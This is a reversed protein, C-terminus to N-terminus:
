KALWHMNSTVVEEARSNERQKPFPLDKDIDGIMRFKTVVQVSLQGFIALGKSGASQWLASPPVDELGHSWV